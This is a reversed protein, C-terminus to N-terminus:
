QHNGWREALRRELERMSEVAADEEAQTLPPQQARRPKM